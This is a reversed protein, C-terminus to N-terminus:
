MGQGASKAQEGAADLLAKSAEFRGMFNSPAITAGYMRLDDLGGHLVSFDAEALKAIASTDVGGVFGLAAPPRAFSGMHSGSRDKSAKDLWAVWAELSAGRPDLDFTTLVYGGVEVRDIILGDLVSKAIGGTEKGIEAALKASPLITLRDVEHGAVTSAAKEFKFELSAGMKKGFIDAPSLSAAWTAYEDRVSAGSLKRLLALGVKGDARADATFGLLDSYKGAWAAFFGELSKKVADGGIGTEKGWINLMAESQENSFAAEGWQASNVGALMFALTGPPITKLEGPDLPRYAAAQYTKGLKSEPDIHMSVDFNPLGAIVSMSFTYQLLGDMGATSNKRQWDQVEFVIRQLGDTLPEGRDAPKPIPGNLENAKALLAAAQKGILVAEFQDSLKKGRGLVHTELHDGLTAFTKPGVTISVREGELADIFLTKGEAEVSGVHGGTGAKANTGLKEVLGKAGGDFTFACGFNEDYPETALMACGVPESVKLGRIADGYQEASMALLAQLGRADLYQKYAALAEIEQVKKLLGDSNSIIFQAVVPASAEVRSPLSLRGASTVAPRAKAGDAQDADQSKADAKVEAGEAPQEAAKEDGGADADGKCSLLISASLLPFLLARVARM